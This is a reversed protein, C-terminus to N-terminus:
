RGCVRPDFSHRRSIRAPKGAVREQKEKNTNKRTLERSFFPKQKELDRAIVRDV